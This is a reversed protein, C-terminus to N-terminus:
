HVVRRAPQGGEPGLAEPQSHAFGIPMQRLAQLVAAEKRAQAAQELASVARSFDGPPLEAKVALVRLFETPEVQADTHWLQESIKEGPRTGVFRIEIDKDPRLGALQILKRALSTIKVPDGMDLMYIDGDSALSAAQLVLQSAEPITMFYRTMHEDTITIPGGAAIQRQFIPVV